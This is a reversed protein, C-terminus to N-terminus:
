VLNEAPTRLVRLSGAFDEWSFNFHRDQAISERGEDESEVENYCERVKMSAWANLRGEKLFEGLNSERDGSKEAYHARRM